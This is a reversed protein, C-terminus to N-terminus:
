CFLHGHMCAREECLQCGAHVAGHQVSTQCVGGMCDCCMGVGVKSLDRFLHDCKDQTHVFIITKGVEYWDGLIELLCLFRDAEPMVDVFQTVDANVVSRGGVQLDNVVACTACLQKTTNWLLGWCSGALISSCLLAWVQWLTSGHWHLQLRGYLAELQQLM